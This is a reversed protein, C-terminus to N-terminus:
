HIRLDADRQEAALRHGQEGECPRLNNSARKRIAAVDQRDPGVANVVAPTPLQVSVSVASGTAITQFREEPQEAVRSAIAVHLLQVTVEEPGRELRIGTVGIIQRVEVEVPVAIHVAQVVAFEVTLEALESGPM